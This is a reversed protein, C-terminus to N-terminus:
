SPLPLELQRRQAWRGGHKACLHRSTASRKWGSPWWVRYVAPEACPPNWGGVPAHCVGRPEPAMEISPLVRDSM